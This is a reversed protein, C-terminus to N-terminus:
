ALKPKPMDSPYAVSIMQDLFESRSLRVMDGAGRDIPHGYNDDGWAASSSGWPNRLVVDGTKKDIHDFTLQHLKGQLGLQVSSWHTSGLPTLAVFVPKDGQYGKLFDYADKAQVAAGVTSSLLSEGGFEGYQATGFLHAYFGDLDSGVQWNTKVGFLKNEDKAADYDLWDGNSEEMAAGQFLTASVGSGFTEVHGNKFSEHQLGLKGGGAMEAHGSEGTLDAMLRVYEAPNDKVLAYQAATVSCTGAGGQDVRSPDLVEDLVDRRLESETEPDGAFSDNPKRTYLTAVDDLLTHGRSDLDHLKSSELLSELDRSSIDSSAIKLISQRSGADRWEPSAFISLVSQPDEELRKSYGDGSSTDLFRQRDDTETHPNLLLSRPPPLGILPLPESPPEKDYFDELKEAEALYAKRELTVDSPADASRGRESDEWQSEKYDRRSQAALSKAEAKLLTQQKAQLAQTLQDTKAEDAKVHTKDSKAKAQALAKRAAEARRRAAEAQQRAEEAARMAQDLDRPVHDAGITHIGM